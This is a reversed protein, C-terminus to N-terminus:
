RPSSTAPRSRATSTTRRGSSSRARRSCSPRRSREAVVTVTVDDTATGDIGDDVTLTLVHVGPPLTVTPTAGDVSVGLGLVDGTWTYTLVALPDDPDSSASGDLVVDAGAAPACPITQDDGADAIPLTQAGAGSALLGTALAALAARSLARPLKSLRTM